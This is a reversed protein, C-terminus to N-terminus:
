SLQIRGNHIAEMTIDISEIDKTKFLKERILRKMQNYEEKEEGDEYVRVVKVLGDKKSMQITYSDVLYKQDYFCKYICVTWFFCTDTQTFHNKELRVPFNSGFRNGTPFFQFSLCLSDSFSSDPIALFWDLVVLFSPLSPFHVM